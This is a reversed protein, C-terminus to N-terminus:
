DLPISSDQTPRPTKRQMAPERVRAKPQEGKLPVVIVTTMGQM